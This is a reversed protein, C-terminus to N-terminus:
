ARKCQYVVSLVCEHISVYSFHHLKKKYYRCTFIVDFLFPFSIRMPLTKQSPFTWIDFCFNYPLSYSCISVGVRQMATSTFSHSISHTSHIPFNHIHFYTLFVWVFSVFCVPFLRVFALLSSVYEDNRTKLTCRRKTPILNSRLTPFFYSQFPTICLCLFHYQLGSLIALPVSLM